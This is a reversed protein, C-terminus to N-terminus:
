IELKNSRLEGCISCLAGGSGERCLTRNTTLSGGLCNSDHRCSYVETSKSTFRFYGKELEMSELTKSGAPPLPTTSSPLPPPPDTYLSTSGDTHIQLPLRNRAVRVTRLRVLGYLGRSVTGDEDTKVGEPKDVCEGGEMYTNRLCEDCEASGSSSHYSPGRDSTCKLCM